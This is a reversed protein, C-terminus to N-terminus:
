NTRPELKLALTRPRLRILWHCLFRPNLRNLSGPNGLEQPGQSPRLNYPAVFVKVCSFLLGVESCISLLLQSPHDHPWLICPPQAGKRPLQTRPLQLGLEGGPVAPDGNLVIPGPGSGVETGLAMKIWGATQGCYVHASFQPPAAGKKPPVAAPTGM